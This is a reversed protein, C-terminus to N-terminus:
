KRTVRSCSVERGVSSDMVQRTPTIAVLRLPRQMHDALGGNSRQGQGASVKWRILDDRVSQMAERCASLSRAVSKRSSPLPADYDIEILGNGASASGGPGSRPVIPQLLAQFM